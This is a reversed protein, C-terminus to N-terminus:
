QLKRTIKKCGIKELEPPITACNSENMKSNIVFNLMRAARMQTKIKQYEYFYEDIKEEILEVDEFSTNLCYANDNDKYYNNDLVHSVNDHMQRINYLCKGTKNMAADLIARLEDLSLGCISNYNQQNESAM